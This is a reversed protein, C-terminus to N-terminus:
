VISITIVIITITSQFIAHQQQIVLFHAKQPAKIANKNVRTKEANSCVM